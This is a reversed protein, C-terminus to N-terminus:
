VTFTAGQEAVDIPGHFTTAAGRVAFAADANPHLHTLVLRAAGGASAVRGADQPTMVSTFPPPDPISLFAECLLLDAGGALHTLAACPASDSTYSLVRGGHSARLGFTDVSHATAVAELALEGLDYSARDTLEVLDFVEPAGPEPAVTHTWAAMGAPGFVPMPRERRHGYTLAHRVMPLDGCHDPHLHSIWIADLDPLSTFRLLEVMSGTGADVWVRQGAAELLYGSCARGAAPWGGVCGLVRLRM